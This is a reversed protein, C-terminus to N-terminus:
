QVKLFDHLCLPCFHIEEANYKPELPTEGDRLRQNIEMVKGIQIAVLDGENRYTHGCEFCRIYISESRNYRHWSNCSYCFNKGDEDM